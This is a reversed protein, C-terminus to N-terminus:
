PRATRGRSAALHGPSPLSEEEMHRVGVDNDRAAGVEGPTKTGYMGLPTPPNINGGLTFAERLEALGLRGMAGPTVGGWKKRDAEIIQGVKTLARQVFNSKAEPQHTSQAEM